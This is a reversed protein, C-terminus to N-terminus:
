LCDRGRLVTEILLFFAATFCLFSAKSGCVRICSGLDFKAFKLPFCTFAKMEM